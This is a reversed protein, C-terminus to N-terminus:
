NDQFWDQSAEHRLFVLKGCRCDGGHFVRAQLELGTQTLHVECARRPSLFLSEEASTRLYQFRAKQGM